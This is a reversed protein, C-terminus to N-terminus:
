RWLLLLAFVGMASGAAIFLPVRPLRLRAMSSEVIGVAIGTAVMSLVLAAAGAGGDRPIPVVTAGILAGLVSLKLANAYQIMALDPGSHDLVIVEHVMTLELHTAPDDAPVRSCEALTLAFLSGALLLQMAGLGAHPLPFGGLMGSLSASHTAVGLALLAIFLGPEILVAFTVDRSAGMGEFSSGTDLAGLALVFRSLALLYVFAVVDGGFALLARRGDLPVLLAAVLTASLMIVPALRFVASTATSYVAGRRLQKALDAYLQTLPAGRRGAFVAKTRTIIGPVLPAFLLLLAYAALASWWSAPATM